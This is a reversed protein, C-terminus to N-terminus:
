NLKGGKPRRTKKLIREGEEEVLRDAYAASSLTLKQTGKAWHTKTEPLDKKRGWLRKREAEVAKPIAGKDDSMIAKNLEPYADELIQDITEEGFGGDAFDSNVELFGNDTLKLDILFERLQFLDAHDVNDFEDLKINADTKNKAEVISCTGDPWRCLFVAM